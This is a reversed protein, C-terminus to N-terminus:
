LWGHWRCESWQRVIGAVYACEKPFSSALEFFGRTQLARDIQDVIEEREVSWPYSVFRGARLGGHLVEEQRVMM